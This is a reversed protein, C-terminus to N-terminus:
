NMMQPSGVRNKWIIVERTPQLGYLQLFVIQSRLVGAAGIAMRQPVGLQVFVIQLLITRAGTVGVTGIAMDVVIDAAEVTDVAEVVIDVVMAIPALEVVNQVGATDIAVKM